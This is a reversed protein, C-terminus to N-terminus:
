GRHRAPRDPDFQSGAPLLDGGRDIPAVLRALVSEPLLTNGEVRVARVVVTPITVATDPISSDARATLTACALCVCTMLMWRGRVTASVRRVLRSVETM